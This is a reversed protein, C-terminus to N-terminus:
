SIQECRTPQVWFTQKTIQECWTPQVWITPKSIKRVIYKWFSVTRNECRLLSAGSMVARYVCHSRDKSASSSSLNLWSSCFKRNELGTLDQIDCALTTSTSCHWDAWNMIHTRLSKEWGIHNPFVRYVVWWSCVERDQEQYIIYIMWISLWIVGAVDSHRVRGIVAFCM